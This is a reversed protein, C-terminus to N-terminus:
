AVCQGYGEQERNEGEGGDNGGAAGEADVDGPREMVLLEVCSFWKCGSASNFHFNLACERESTKGIAADGRRLDTATLMPPTMTPPELGMTTCDIVLVSVASELAVTLWIMCSARAPESSTRTVTFVSSAALATGTITEVSRSKPTLTGMM